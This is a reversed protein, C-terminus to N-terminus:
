NNQLLIKYNKPSVGISKKFVKGFYNEDDYGLSYAIESVTRRSNTLLLKAKEMRLDTLYSIINTKYVEKFRKSIYQPSLYFLKSLENLSIDKHFHGDLYHKIEEIAESSVLECDANEMVNWLLHVFLSEWELLDAIWPMIMQAANMANPQPL